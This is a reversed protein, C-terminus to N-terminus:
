GGLQPFLLLLIETLELDAPAVYHSKTDFLWLLTLSIFFMLLVSLSLSFHSLQPLEQSGLLPLEIGLVWM